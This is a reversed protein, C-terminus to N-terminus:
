PEVPISEVDWIKRAYERISRDSSFFGMRAVNLISSRTWGERDRWAEEVKRQCDVYARFDALVLFPDERLLNEVIPHFVERDGGSFEGSALADLAERLDDDAAAIEWPRYGDARIRRVEDATLGFLFFNEPGVCERIEVNAGDLTGITLAGNLAFKMNGTGSAEKGAMSIQESLDSGPFIPQANKVNYDPLFAVRLRDRVTPDANVVDGVSHVLKVIRKAM